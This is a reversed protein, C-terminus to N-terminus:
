RGQRLNRHSRCLPRDKKLLVNRINKLLKNNSLVGRALWVAAVVALLQISPVRLPYDVVSAIALLLLVSGGARALAVSHKGQSPRFAIKALGVLVAAIAMALLLAAGIGGTMLFELYDNHVHNVYSPGLFEAGEHRMFVREFAGLGSGWPAYFQGLEAVAPAIKSRLDGAYDMAAFRALAETRGQAIAGFAILVLPVGALAVMMLKRGSGTGIGKGFGKRIGKSTGKASRRGAFAANGSARDGAMQSGAAENGSGFDFLGISWAALVFGALMTLLGARSGTVFVLPVLVLVALYASLTQQSFGLYLRAGGQQAGRLGWVALMPVLCALFVAQHNRNAFLGVASGNNTVRYLYLSGGADGLLQLIALVGSALGALILGALLFRQGKEDLQVALCLGAAPVFLSWFANWTGPPDLSLPRWVEGLGALADVEMVIDRGPLSQWMSPPLPLLHFVVLLVAMVALGFLLKFQRIHAWSLTLLGAGLVMVALPRLLILSHIESRSGGGMLFTLAVFVLLIVLPSTLKHAKAPKGSIGSGPVSGSRSRNIASVHTMSLDGSLASEGNM